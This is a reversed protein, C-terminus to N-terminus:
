YELTTKVGDEYALWSPRSLLDKYWRAVHPKRTMVDSKAEREIVPANPLHFLDALTLEDGALYKQKALIANYGNLATDLDALSADLAAQDTKMGRRPKGRAEYVARAASADFNCLEVSAAQEFLANKKPDTPILKCEPYKAAIYRCIARTEYLFFGDDDIYPIKGFPQKELYSATKHEGKSRDIQILEFPVKAEYLVTAVRRTCTALTDGYLKLIAM